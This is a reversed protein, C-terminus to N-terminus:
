RILLVLFLFFRLLKIKPLKVFFHTEPFSHIEPHSALMSQLLTTGSRAVGVIFIRKM